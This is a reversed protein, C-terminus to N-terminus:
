VSVQRVNNTFQQVNNPQNISEKNILLVSVTPIISTCTQIIYRIKPSYSYQTIFFKTTRKKVINTNTM